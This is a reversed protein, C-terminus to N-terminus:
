PACVVANPPAQGPNEPQAIQCVVNFIGYRDTDYRTTPLIYTAMWTALKALTTANAPTAPMEQYRVIYTFIGKLLFDSSTNLGKAGATKKILNKFVPYAEDVEGRSLQESLDADFRGFMSEVYYLIISVAGFDFKGFHDETMGNRRSGHEMFNAAKRRQEPSLNKWYAALRPFDDKVWYDMRAHFQNRFCAAPVKTWGLADEGLGADCVPTIETRMQETMHSSSILIMAYNVLETLSGQGNGDSAATFLDMDQLRKQAFNPISTDFMRLAFLVDGYDKFFTALDTDVFASGSAAYVRQVHRGVRDLLLVLRNQYRSYGIGTGYQITYIEGKMGQRKRFLPQYTLLKTRIDRIRAKESNDQLSNEFVQLAQALEVKGVSEPNMGIREYMRDLLNLDLFIERVLGYATDIVGQDVGAQTSSGLLKRLLPRLTSKMVRRPLNPLIDDPIEGILHDYIPLPALGQHRALSAQIHPKVRLALEWLLERFRHDNWLRANLTRDPAPDEGLSTKLALAIGGLTFGSRFLEAWDRNEIADRRTNFMLWKALFVKSSLGDIVPLDLSHTLEELLSEVARSSLAGVPLSNVFDAVRNGAREFASVFALLETNTPASSQRIRLHPILEGTIERLTDLSRKLLEIEEKTFEQDSGGFLGAKLGFAGGMLEPRVERNTILFTKVLNYMDGQSYARDSSGRVYDTFFGLSQNVCDFAGKWQSESIEGRMYRGVLDRSDNLCGTAGGAGQGGGNSPLQKAGLVGCSTLSFLLPIFLPSKNKFKFRM